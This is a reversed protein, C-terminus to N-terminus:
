RSPKQLVADPVHLKGVDHLIAARGTAAATTADFGMREALRRTLAEVRRVHDGTAHDKQESALALMFIADDHAEDLEATRERVRVELEDAHNKLQKAQEIVVDGLEGMIKNHNNLRDKSERLSRAVVLGKITRGFLGSILVLEPFRSADFAAPDNWLYVVMNVAEGDDFHPLAALCRMGALHERGPDDSAVRVDDIIRPEGAWILDGLLGGALVPAAKPRQWVDVDDPRLDSHTVRVRPRDLDRRSLSVAREFPFLGRTDRKFARMVAAPNAHGSLERLAAVARDLRSSLPTRDDLVTSQLRRAPWAARRM